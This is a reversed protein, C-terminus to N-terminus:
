SIASIRWNVTRDAATTGKTLTMDWGAGLIITPSVWNPDAQANAFTYTKVLRQTDGTRAKEYIKFYFVDGAALANLDVMAQFLGESTSSAISSSDSTLSWETTSVAQTGTISQVSIAM